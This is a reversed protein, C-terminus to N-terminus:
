KEIMKKETNQVRVNDAHGFECRLARREFQNVNEVFEDGLEVCKGLYTHSPHVFQIIYYHDIIIMFTM